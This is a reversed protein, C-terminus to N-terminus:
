CEARGLHYLASLAAAVAVAAWAVIVLTDPTAGGTLLRIAIQGLAQFFLYAQFLLGPARLHRAVAAYALLLVFVWVATALLSLLLPDTWLAASAASADARPADWPPLPALPETVFDLCRGVAALGQPILLGPVASDLLRGIPLGQRRAYRLVAWLGVLLGAGFSLGGDWLQVVRSPATLYVEPHTLVYVVRAALLAEPLSWLAADHLSRPTLGARAAAARVALYGLALGLTLFAGSWRLELAGIRVLAPDALM